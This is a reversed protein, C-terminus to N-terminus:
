GDFWVVDTVRFERMGPYRSYSILVPVGPVLVGYRGDSLLDGPMPRGDDAAKGAEVALGALFAVVHDHTDPHGTARIAELM